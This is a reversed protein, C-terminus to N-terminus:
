TVHLTSFRRGARKFLQTVYRPTAPPLPATVGSAASGQLRYFSYKVEIPTQRRDSVKLNNIWIFRIEILPPSKYPSECFQSFLSNAECHRGTQRDTRGDTGVPRIKM